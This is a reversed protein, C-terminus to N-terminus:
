SPTRRASTPLVAIIVTFPAAGRTFEGYRLAHPIKAGSTVWRMEEVELPKCCSHATDLTFVEGFGVPRPENVDPLFGVDARYVHMRRKGVLGYTSPDLPRRLWIKYEPVALVGAQLGAKILAYQLISHM